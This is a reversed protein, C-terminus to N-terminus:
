HCRKCRNCFGTFSDITMIKIIALGILDILSIGFVMNKLEFVLVTGKGDAGWEGFYCTYNDGSKIRMNAARNNM